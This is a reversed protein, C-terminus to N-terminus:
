SGRLKLLGARVRAGFPSARIKALETMADKRRQEAKKNKVLDLAASIGAICGELMATSAEEIGAVDGAVYISKNTTQMYKNHVAVYGGLEAVYRMECGAHYLLEYTPKLGVAVCIVDCKFERESGPIEKWNEDLRVVLAGKVGKNGLARKVTHSTLIPVGLRRVKAAHVQYGGIRKAAEIIAKVKVGAQLLQYSVILGVNGAGIMLVEDGPRVGNVNM